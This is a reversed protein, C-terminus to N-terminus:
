GLFSGSTFVLSFSDEADAPASRLPYRFPSLSRTKGRPDYSSQAANWWNLHNDVKIVNLVPEWDEYRGGVSIPTGVIEAQTITLNDLTAGAVNVFYLRAETFNANTLNANEFSANTLFTNTLNAGSLNAGSLDAGELNTETLNAGTLDAQRLDAGILHAQTLDANSLDCAYCMNTSLLQEVHAPNEAQAATTMVAPIAISLAAISILNKMIEEKPLM